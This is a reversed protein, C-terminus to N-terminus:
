GPIPFLTTHAEGFSCLDQRTVKSNHNRGIWSYGPCCLMGMGLQDGYLPLQKACHHHYRKDSSPKISLNAVRRHRYSGQWRELKMGAIRLDWILISKAVLWACMCEESQFETGFGLEMQNNNFKPYKAPLLNFNACWLNAILARIFFSTKGLYYCLGAYLLETGVVLSPILSRLGRPNNFPTLFTRSIAAGATIISRVWLGSSIIM